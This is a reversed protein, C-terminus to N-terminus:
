SSLSYSSLFEQRNKNLPVTYYFSLNKIL